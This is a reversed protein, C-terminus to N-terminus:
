EEVADYGIFSCHDVGSKLFISNQHSHMIFCLGTESRYIVNFIPFFPFSLFSM